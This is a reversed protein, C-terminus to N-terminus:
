TKRKKKTKTGNERLWVAFEYGDLLAQFSALNINDSASSVLWAEKGDSFVISVEVQASTGVAGHILRVEFDLLRV